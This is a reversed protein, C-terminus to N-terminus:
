VEPAAASVGRPRSVRRRLPSLFVRGVATSHHHHELRAFLHITFTNVKIIFLHSGFRQTETERGKCDTSMGSCSYELSWPLRSYDLRVYCRKRLHMLIEGIGNFGGSGRGLWCPDHSFIHVVDTWSVEQDGSGLITDVLWRLHQALAQKQSDQWEPLGEHWCTLSGRLSVGEVTAYSAHWLRIKVETKGTTIPHHRATELQPLQLHCNSVAIPRRNVVERVRVLLLPFALGEALFNAALPFTNWPSLHPPPVPTSQHCCAPVHELSQALARSNTSAAIHMDIDGTLVPRARKIDCGVYSCFLVKSNQTSKVTEAPVCLGVSTTSCAISTEQTYSNGFLGCNKVTVFHVAASFLPRRNGGHGLRPSWRLLLVYQLIISQEKMLFIQLTYISLGQRDERM